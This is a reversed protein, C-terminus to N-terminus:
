RGVALGILEQMREEARARSAAIDAETGGSCRIVTLDDMGMFGFATRLYPEFHDLAVHPSPPVYDNMSSSLVVVKRGGALGRSPFAGPLFTRGVRIVQDIWAKFVAPVTFNYVPSGVVIVESALLEDVLEDSVALAAHRTGPPSGRDFAAAIWAADVQAVPAAALDRYRVTTGPHAAVWADVFQRSLARTLSGAQRASCDLHLLQSM